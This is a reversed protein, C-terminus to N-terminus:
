RGRRARLALARAVALRQSDCPTAAFSSDAQVATTFALPAPNVRGGRFHRQGEFFSTLAAVSSTGLSPLKGGAGLSLGLWERRSLM